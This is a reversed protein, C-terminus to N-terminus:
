GRTCSQFCKTRQSILQISPWASTLSSCTAQYISIQRCNPVFDRETPIRDGQSCPDERLRSAPGDLPVRHRYGHSVSLKRFRPSGGPSIAPTDLTKRETLRLADGRLYLTSICSLRVPVAPHSIYRVVRNISGAFARAHKWEHIWNTKVGGIRKQSEKRYDLAALFAIKRRTIHSKSRVVSRM